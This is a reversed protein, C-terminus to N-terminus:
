DPMTQAANSWARVLAGPLGPEVWAVSDLQVATAGMALTTAADEWSHIGGCAIIPLDLEQSAIDALANLMLPLLAPGHLPGALRRPLESRHAGEGACAPLGTTSSTALTATPAQCVVLAGAGAQAAVPALQSANAYPLKVWLPLEGELALSAVLNHVDGESSAPHVLLELGAVAESRALHAATRLADEPEIDAIQAVVPVGLRRWTRGFRKVSSGAGRNQLGAQLVYGGLGVALRPPTAGRRSSLTFPGVVVAGLGADKLSQPPYEACGVVGGGLLIPNAVALGAKHNPALELM